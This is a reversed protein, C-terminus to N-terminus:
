MYLNRATQVKCHPSAALTHQWSPPPRFLHLQTDVGCRWNRWSSDVAGRAQWFGGNLSDPKRINHLDCYPPHKNSCTTRVVKVPLHQTCCAADNGLWEGLCILKGNKNDVVHKAFCSFPKSEIPKGFPNEPVASILWTKSETANRSDLAGFFRRAERSIASQSITDFDDPSCRSSLPLLALFSPANDAESAVKTRTCCLTPPVSPRAMSTTRLSIVTVARRQRDSSAAVVDLDLSASLTSSECLRFVADRSM